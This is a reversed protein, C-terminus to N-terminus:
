KKRSIYHAYYIAAATVILLIVVGTLYEATM